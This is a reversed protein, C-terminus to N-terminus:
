MTSHTWSGEVTVFTKLFRAQNIHGWVDVALSVIFWLADIAIFLLNYKHYAIYPLLAGPLMPTMHSFVGGGLAQPKLFPPTTLQCGALGVSGDAKQPMNAMEQVLPLPWPDSTPFVSKPSPPSGAPSLSNHLLPLPDSTSTSLCSSANRLLHTNSFSVTQGSLGCKDTSVYLHYSCTTLWDITVNLFM